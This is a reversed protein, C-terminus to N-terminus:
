QAVGQDIPVSPPEEESIGNLAKRGAKINNLVKTAVDNGPNLQLIREFVSIAADKEGIEYYTLGLFYLANSYNPDLVFARELEARAKTFDKKQYYVLGLQFALGVDFPAAEKAKELSAIMEDQKGQALFVRALQFHAPAYDAKLQISKNFYDGAEELLDTKEQKDSEALIAVQRLISIGAQTPYFPNVPDLKMAEKYADVAWDKTGGVTGILSQYVFGRNGWNDASKSNVDSAAKGANVAKNIANQVEQRKQEQTLGEKAAVLQVNKLYAQSLERWYLDINPSISAAKEIKALAKDTQNQQWITIGDLYNMSSIYRQGELIFIGLGFVFVVTIAFTFGLTILSSPKLEFEKREPYLLAIFCAMLLFYTFDLTTNSSYLFFGASAILFSIFMGVGLAWYFVIDEVEKKKFLFMIGYFIFFGMLVVFSLVGLVGVTALVTLIKSAGSEFVANWLNNNQNFSIDKYKAFVYSFTGPGTGVVPNEQVSKLAINLTPQQKLFFEAPIQPLGPIAFRFFAFLLGVALFFMPLILWRSDFVDRRQMGFAFILASGAIVLWWAVYFNILLLLISFIAISVIFLIRYIKKKAAMLLMIILPLLIAAFIALVNISGVTNFSVAKTFGIPIIFKGFIQLIAYVGSLAASFVLLSLMHMIGKREFNNVVLLYFLALCMLTIFSESTVIPWGWFSGYRWSSFITSALYVLLLVGVPIHIFSLSIQVKGSILIKLLWAFTAVFVLVILLAQKNFELVNATWPLFLVPLLFALWYLCMKSVKDCTDAFSPKKKLADEPAKMIKTADKM